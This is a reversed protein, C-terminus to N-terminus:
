GVTGPQPNFRHGLAELVSSIGNRWLPFAENYIKICVHSLKISSKHFIIPNFALAAKEKNKTRSVVFYRRFSLCKQSKIKEKKKKKKAANFIKEELSSYEINQLIRYPFLIQFFISLIYVYM